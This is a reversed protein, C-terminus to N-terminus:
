WLGIANQLLELTIWQLIEIEKTSIEVKAKLILKCNTLEFDFIAEATVAVCVSCIIASFNFDSHRLIYIFLSGSLVLSSFLVEFTTSESVSLYKGVVHAFLM